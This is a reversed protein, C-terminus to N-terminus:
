CIQFCKKKNNEIDNTKSDIIQRTDQIGCIGTKHLGPGSPGPIIGNHDFFNESITPPALLHHVIYFHYVCGSIPEFSILDM